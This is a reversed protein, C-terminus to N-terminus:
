KLKELLSRGTMEMPKELNFLELITPAVDTLTGEVKQYTNKIEEETRPKEKKLDKAVLYFPVPNNSHKTRKEGTLKYLKEEINGHDATILLIGGEKIVAPIIKGISYDLTEIAKISAEFNGTHGVMDANAFNALIFDYNKLNTIITETVKEAAMEPAKEFSVDPSPVLMREEKDFPKETGGNFFYTVHAYKESEALHLQSLGAQSIIATLPWRVDLPPFAAPCSFKKDYETMTVFVLDSLYERRFKDFNQDVFAQTLERASDERFNWFIVADGNKILGEKTTAPEIGEDNIGKKYEEELYSDPKQFINGLGETLLRYTKEILNWNDDRDMSFHRGILSVIKADPYDKALKQSFDKIFGAGERPSADRGDTFLHLYVNQIVNQKALDLLAYVHEEYAHVSGSSFLGMLHLSSKKEKVQKIAKLLAENQFFSGDAIAGIIRPLHNFIIRGSGMTLHGVESNGEEGWPLGVAVGSAQLTTFPWFKETESFAPHKAVQWPSNTAKTDIGFGDLVVLVVPDYSYKM